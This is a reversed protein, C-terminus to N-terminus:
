YSDTCPQPILGLALAVAHTLRIDQTLYDLAAPRDEAYLRAFDAGHGTKRGVGLHRAIKDLSTRDERVGCRWSDLIDICRSPLYRGRHLDVPIPIRHHWSRRILFPLDFTNSNFGLIECGATLAWFAELDAPEDGTAFIAPAPQRDHLDMYGIALVRGTLASLAADAFWAERKEAIYAAVKDPDRYNAPAEFDPCLDAIQERPSPGTEIDFLIM